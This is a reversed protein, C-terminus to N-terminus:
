LFKMLRMAVLGFQVNYRYRSERIAPVVVIREVDGGQDFGKM